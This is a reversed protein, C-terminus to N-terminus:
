GPIPCLALVGFRNSMDEPLGPFVVGHPFGRRTVGTGEGLVM